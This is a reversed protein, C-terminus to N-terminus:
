SSAASGTVTLMDGDLDGVVTAGDVWQVDNAEEFTFEGAEVNEVSLSEGGCQPPYSELAAACLKWGSGDNILLGSVHVPGTVDEALVEDVTYVRMTTGGAAGGAASDDTVPPSGDAPGAVDVTDDGGCGVVLVATAAVILLTKRM